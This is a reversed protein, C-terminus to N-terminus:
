EKNTRREDYKERWEITKGALTRSITAKGHSDVVAIKFSDNSVQKSKEILRKVIDNLSEKRSGMTDLIDKVDKDIQITTKETM